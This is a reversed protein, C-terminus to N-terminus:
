EIQMAKKFWDDGIREKTADASVLFAGSRAHDRNLEALSLDVMVDSLATASFSIAITKLRLARRLEIAIARFLARDIPVGAPLSCKERNEAITERAIDCGIVAASYSDLARGSSATVTPIKQECRARIQQMLEPDPYLSEGFAFAAKRYLMQWDRIVEDIPRRKEVDQRAQVALRTRKESDNYLDILADGLEEANGPEVLLGNRGHTIFDVIGGVRSAVIPRACAMAELVVYGMPEYLSPVVVIDSALYYVSGHASNYAQRLEIKVGLEELRSTDFRYYGSGFWLSGPSHGLGHGVLVLQLNTATAALRECGAILIEIGKRRDPRGVYTITFSENLNTRQRASTPTEAHGFRNHDFPADLRLISRAGVNRVEQEHSSSLVTVFRASSAATQEAEAAAQVEHKGGECAIGDFM